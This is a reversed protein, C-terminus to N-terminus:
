LCGCSELTGAAEPYEVCDYLALLREVSRDWTYRGARERAATGMRERLASDALV